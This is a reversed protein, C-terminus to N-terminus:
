YYLSVVAHLAGLVLLALSLPIHLLLWGHLWRHIREQDAYARREECAAELETLWRDQCVKKLDLVLGAVGPADPAPLEAFTKAAAAALGDVEPLALLGERLKKYAADAKTLLDKKEPLADLRTRYEDFLSAAAAFHDKVAQLGMRARLQGFALEARAAAALPSKRTPREFYPRVVEDHFRHLESGDGGTPAGAPWLDAAEVLEDTRRRLVGCLHPLQEYSAEYPVRRRLLGPLVQQLALGYIGSAFLAILIAWLAIELPGGWRFGSHCLIFLGSLLGLWIHGRMWTQRSGLWWWSPVYRLAALLGAYIMLASGAVGYWLGATSGGTLGGPAQRWLVAYLGTAGVAVAVTAVFWRKHTSDLLV